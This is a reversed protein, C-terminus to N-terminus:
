GERKFILVNNYTTTKSICGSTVALQISGDYAWGGAAAANIAADVSQQIENQKGTWNQNLVVTKYVMFFGEERKFKHNTLEVMPIIVVAFGIFGKLSAVFCAMNKLQVWCTNLAVQRLAVDADQAQQLMDNILKLQSYLLEGSSFLYACYHFAL